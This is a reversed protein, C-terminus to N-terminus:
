ELFVLDNGESLCIDVLLFLERDMVAFRHDVPEEALAALTALLRAIGFEDFVDIVKGDGCLLVRLEGGIRRGRSRQVIAFRVGLSRDWWFRLPGHHSTRRRRLRLKPTLGLREHAFM